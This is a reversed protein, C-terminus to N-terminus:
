GSGHRAFLDLRALREGWEAMGLRVFGAALYFREAAENEPHYGVIISRCDPEAAIREILLRIATRGIGQGQYRRDVMFRYISYVGGEPEAGYLAYGVIREDTVIAQRVVWDLDRSEDLSEAIPAMFRVQDPRLQLAVVEPERESSIAELRVPIIPM